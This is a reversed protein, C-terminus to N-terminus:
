AAPGIWGLLFFTGLAITLLSSTTLAFRLKSKTTEMKVQPVVILAGVVYDLIGVGILVLGIIERPEM